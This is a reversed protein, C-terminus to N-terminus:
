RQSRKDCALGVPHHRECGVDACGLNRHARVHGIEACRECHGPRGWSQRDSNSGAYPHTQAM